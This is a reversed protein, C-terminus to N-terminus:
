VLCTQRILGSSSARLLLILVSREMWRKCLLLKVIPKRRPWLESGDASSIAVLKGSQTVVFLQQDVQGIGATIQEALDITWNAKGTDLNYSGLQQGSAAFVAGESLVPQMFSSSKYDGKGVPVSWHQVLQVQQKFATLATPDPLNAGSSSCASVAILTLCTILLKFSRAVM